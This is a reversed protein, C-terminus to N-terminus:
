ALFNVAKEKVKLLNEHYRSEPSNHRISEPKLKLEEALERIPQSWQVPKTNLYQTRYDITKM